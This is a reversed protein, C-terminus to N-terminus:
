PFGGPVAYTLEVAEEGVTGDYWVERVAVRYSRGPELGSLVARPEFAVGVPRGDVEVQYGAISYYEPRWALRVKGAADVVAELGEPRRPPYVYGEGPGFALRWSV